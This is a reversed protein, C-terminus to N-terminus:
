LPKGGSNKDASTSGALQRQSILYREVPWGLLLHEQIIQELVEPDCGGDGAGVARHPRPDRCVLEADGQSRDQRTQRAANAAVLAESRPALGATALLEVPQLGLRVVAVTDPQGQVHPM